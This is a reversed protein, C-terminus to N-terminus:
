DEYSPFLTRNLRGRWVDAFTATRSQGGIIYIYHDATTIVSAKHRPLYAEPLRNHATDPVAWHLGEDTSVLQTATNVEAKSNSGGFMHIAHDYWILSIGTLAEYAPQEVSFDGVAYGRNPTYEINWRINRPVGQRDYGGVVMARARGSVSEFTLTGFDSVPFYDPLQIGTEALTGGAVMNVCVLQDDAKRSAVAWISDNFTYLMSVLTFPQASYDTFVFTLGDDSTYLGQADAYYFTGDEHIMQRVAVDTPLGAIAQPASWTIADASTYLQPRIGDNVFLYFTSGSYFARSEAGDMSFVAPNICQWDYYDPDVQHVAFDIDYWKPTKQDSAMVYLYIPRSNFDITDKGSYVVTDTPTYIVSYSPTHNFTIRPIVSDIPTGYLLSDTCYIHGTDSTTVITFKAAALGPFSDNAAFSFSTVLAEDYTTVTTSSNNCSALAMLGALACFIYPKLKRM